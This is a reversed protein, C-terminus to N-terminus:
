YVDLFKKSIPFYDPGSKYWYWVSYNKYFFLDLGFFIYSKEFPESFYNWAGWFGKLTGSYQSKSFIFFPYSERELELFIFPKTLKYFISLRSLRM